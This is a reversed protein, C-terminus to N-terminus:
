AGIEKRDFVRCDEGHVMAKNGVCGSNRKPLEGASLKRPNPPVLSFDRVLIGVAADAPVDSIRWQLDALKSLVGFFAMSDANYVAKERSLRTSPSWFYVHDERKIAHSLEHLIVMSTVAGFADMHDPLAAFNADPLDAIRAYNPRDTGANLQLNCITIVFRMEAENPWDNENSRPQHKFGETHGQMGGGCTEFTLEARIHNVVDQWEINDQRRSNRYRAPLSMNDPVKQWRAGTAGPTGDNDCYFRVNAEEREDVSTAQSIIQLTNTIDLEDQMIPDNPDGSLQRPAKYLLEYYRAALTDEGDQLRAAARSAMEIAEAVSDEIRGMCTEHLWYTFEAEAVQRKQNGNQEAVASALLPVLSSLLLINRFKSHFSM